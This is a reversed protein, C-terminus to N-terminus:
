YPYSWGVIGWDCHNLPMDHRRYYGGLDFVVESGHYLFGHLHRIITQADPEQLSIGSHRSDWRWGFASSLTSTIDRIDQTGDEPNVVPLFVRFVRMPYGTTSKGTYTKVWYVRQRHSRDPEDKPFMDRLAQQAQESEARIRNREHVTEASLRTM